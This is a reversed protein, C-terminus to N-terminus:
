QRGAAEVEQKIHQLVRLHIRHIFADSWVRWYAEPGMEIEYWTSGELRTRGDGLDVFRFEGRRSRLYGHLHPPQIDGYPSLERMPAPSAIVDFSLRHNPEWRTIPEVFPGTSFECYRVAGVGTGIIRARMPYAIGARFAWDTPEPIDSFAIVHPWVQAPPADIVVSSQVEYLSHGTAPEVAAALPLSLLAFMAPRAPPVRAGDAVAARRGVSAGFLVLPLAIPMAMVLCLAGELSVWMLVVGALALVGLALAQTQSRTANQERNYVFATAAGQLFPTLVFLWVGYQNTRALRIGVGVAFAAVAVGALLAVAAALRWDGRRPPPPAGSALEPTPRTPLLGFAGFAALRVYPVLVLATLWPSRGADVLRRATLGVAVALCPLGWAAQLLLVALPTGRDLATRAGGLSDIPSWFRGTAAWALLLDGGYNVAALLVGHALYQRGAVPEAGLWFRFVRPPSINMFTNM